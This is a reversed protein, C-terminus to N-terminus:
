GSKVAGEQNSTEKQKKAPVPEEVKSVALDGVEIARRIQRTNPVVMTGSIRNGTQPHDIWRGEVAEVTVTEAM